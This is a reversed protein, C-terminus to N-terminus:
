QLLVRRAMANSENQLQLMYIGTAITNTPITLQTIGEAIAERPSTAMIKGQADMLTVDYIAEDSSSVVVTLVEGADWASVIEIGGTVGCGAAIVDSTTTSRDFDTQVLRYYALGTPQPDTFSYVTTSQSSGAGDVEGIKSWDSNNSSKEVSFYDNGAESATSWTLEVKDGQCEARLDTLEIPLPNNIESLTWSRYFETGPIVGAGNPVTVSRRAGGLNAWASSPKFDGWKNVTNNFRQANLQSTGNISQVTVDAADYRIVMSADPKTTYAYGAAVPDIIWFRDVVWDSNNLAGTADDAMHTVDSPMYGTNDWIPAIGKHNYTSFVMSGAGAGASAKVYTLEMDVNNPSNYPIVYSGTSAGIAWRIYNEERESRINGGTGATTLANTNPNDLVLWTEQGAPTSPDFVLYADDNIVLRAQGFMTSAILAFPLALLTKMM